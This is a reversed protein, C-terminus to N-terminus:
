QLYRCTDALQPTCFVDPSKTMTKKQHKRNTNLDSIPLVRIFESSNQDSPIRLARIESSNRIMEVKQVLPPRELREVAEPEPPRHLRGSLFQHVEVIFKYASDAHIQMTDNQFWSFAAEIM